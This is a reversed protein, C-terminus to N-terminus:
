SGLCGILGDTGAMTNAREMADRDRDLIKYLDFALDSHAPRGRPAVPDRGVGGRQDALKHRRADDIKALGMGNFKGIAAPAGILM